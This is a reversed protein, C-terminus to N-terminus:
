DAPRTGSTAAPSTSARTPPAAGPSKFYEQITQMAPKNIPVYSTDLPGGHQGPANRWEWILAGAVVPEGRWTRFFAQFCLDQTRLDPKQGTVYNWPEKACGVMSPWGVETFIIPKGQTRQWRLVRKKIPKWSELLVELSPKKQGVLDYYVTMGIVDLDSWFKPVEYHDWNASYSLRGRYVKRVKGILTRWRGTQRELSILESGVMLMEAKGREAVKAYFLIVNEYDEWWEDPRPPDILGRWEGAGPNELLVIPMLVVRLGRKHSLEILGILRDAPPSRRSDIFVSNAGTNEQYAATSLCITNAGTRAIEEVYKEFPINPDNSHLQLAIGRFQGAPSPTLPPPLDVPKAKEAFRFAQPVAVAALLLLVVGLVAWRQRRLDSQRTTQHTSEAM